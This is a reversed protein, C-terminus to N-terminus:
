CNFDMSYLKVQVHSELGLSVSLSFDGLYKYGFGNSALLLASYV